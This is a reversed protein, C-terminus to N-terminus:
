RSLTNSNRWSIKEGEPRQDNRYVPTARCDQMTGVQGKVVPPSRPLSNQPRCLTKWCGPVRHLDTATGGSYDPIFSRRPNSSESRDSEPNVGLPLGRGKLLDSLWFVQQFIWHRAVSPLPLGSRIPTKCIPEPSKRQDATRPRHVGIVSSSVGHLFPSADNRIPPTAPLKAVCRSKGM